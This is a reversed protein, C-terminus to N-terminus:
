DPIAVNVDGQVRAQCALRSRYPLYNEMQLLLESEEASVPSLRDIGDDIWVLCSGCIINGDCDNNIIINNELAAELITTGEAVEVETNDNTFVIKPM